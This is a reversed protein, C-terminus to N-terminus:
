KPIVPIGALGLWHGCLAVFCGCALTFADFLISKKKLASTGHLWFVAILEFTYVSICLYSVVETYLPSPAQAARADTDILAAVSDVLITVFMCNVFTDSALLASMKGKLGVLDEESFHGSRTKKSDVKHFDAHLKKRSPSAQSSPKDSDSESVSFRRNGVAFRPSSPSSGGSTAVQIEPSKSSMESSSHDM